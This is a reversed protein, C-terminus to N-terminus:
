CFPCLCKCDRQSHSSIAENICQPMWIGKCSSLSERSLSLNEREVEVFSVKGQKNPWESQCKDEEILAKWVGGPLHVRLYCWMEAKPPMLLFFLHGAPWVCNQLGARIFICCQWSKNHAHIASKNGNHFTLATKITVSLILNQTQTSSISKVSGQEQLTQSDYWFSTKLLLSTIINIYGCVM